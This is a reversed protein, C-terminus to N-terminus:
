VTTDLYFYKQPDERIAARRERFDHEDNDTSWTHISKVDDREPLASTSDRRRM